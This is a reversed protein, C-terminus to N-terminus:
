LCSEVAYICLIVRCSRECVAIDNLDNM